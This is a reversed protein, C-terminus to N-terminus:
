SSGSTIWDSKWPNPAGQAGQCLALLGREPSHPHQVRVRWRSSLHAARRDRRAFRGASGRQGSGGAVVAAFEHLGRGDSPVAPRGDGAPEGQRGGAHLAADPEAVGDVCGRHQRLWLRRRRGAAPAAGDVELALLDRIANQYETRNLRHIAPVRGPNPKAAAARDLANELGAVWKTMVAAEPRPSGLPPM